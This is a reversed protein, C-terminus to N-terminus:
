NLTVAIDSLKLQVNTARKQDLQFKAYKKFNCNVFVDLNNIDNYKAQVHNYEIFIISM